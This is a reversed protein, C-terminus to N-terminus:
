SCTARDEDYSGSGELPEGGIEQLMPRDDAVRHADSCGASIDGRAHRAAKRLGKEILGFMQIPM